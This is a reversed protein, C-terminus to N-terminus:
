WGGGQWHHHHHHHHHYQNYRYRPYWNHHHHHHHHHYYYGGGDGWYQALQVTAEGNERSTRDRAAADASKLAEAANPIPRVLEAYANARSTAPAPVAAHAAAAVSSVALVSALGAIKKDM